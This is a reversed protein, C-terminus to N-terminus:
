ALAPVARGIAAIEARASGQWEDRFAVHERSELIWILM